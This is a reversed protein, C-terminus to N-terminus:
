AKEQAPQTPKRPRYDKFSVGLRKAYRRLTIRERGILPVCDALTKSGGSYFTVLEEVLQVVRKSDNAMM